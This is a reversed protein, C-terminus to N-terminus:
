DNLQRQEQIIVAQYHGLGDCYPGGHFQPNPNLKIFHNVVQQLEMADNAMLIIYTM